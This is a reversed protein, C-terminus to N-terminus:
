ICVEDECWLGAQETEDEVNIDESPVILTGKLCDSHKYTCHLNSSIYLMAGELTTLTFQIFLQNSWFTKM